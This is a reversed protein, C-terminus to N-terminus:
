NNEMKHVDTALILRTKHTRENSGYSLRLLVIFSDQKAITEEQFSVM